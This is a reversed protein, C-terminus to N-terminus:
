ERRTFVMTQALEQGQISLTREQTLTKGDASLSMRDVIGLDGQPTTVTSTVVLTTGDWRLVSSIPSGGATNQHPQGDVAYTIDVVSQAGNVVTTRKIVLRPEQHQIVDVRSEPTPLQGFNSRALDLAWTGSFDPSSQASAPVAALVTVLALVARSPLPRM